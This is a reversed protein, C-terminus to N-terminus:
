GGKGSTNAVVKKRAAVRLPEAVNRDVSVQQLDRSSLRNLFNLSLALPTKPNRTLGLVVNYNKTWARNTAIVRLVEESISAMKAFGEIEPESLKPSSLVAASIMKNPDRILMARMERSGKVAAKIRDPFGMKALKQTATARDEDEAGFEDHAGMDLLPEEAAIMASIDPMEDPFLGRDGFFERLGLPADARALFAKIAEEPIQNLTEEATTRIEADADELLLVLIQLQEHARPALTGLAAEMRVDRAVEGRKFFDLLPTPASM